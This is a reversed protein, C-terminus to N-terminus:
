RGTDLCRSSDFQMSYLNSSFPVIHSWMLRILNGIKMKPMNAFLTLASQRSGLTHLMRISDAILAYFAYSYIYAAAAMCGDVNLRKCALAIHAMRSKTKKKEETENRKGREHSDGNKCQKGVNKGTKLTMMPWPANSQCDDIKTNTYFDDSVHSTHVIEVSRHRISPRVSLRHDFQGVAIIESHYVHFTSLTHTAQLTDAACFSNKRTLKTHWTKKENDAARTYWKEDGCM